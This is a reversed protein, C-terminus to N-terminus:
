ICIINQAQDGAGVKPMEWDGTIETALSRIGNEPWQLWQVWTYIWVWVFVFMYVYLKFYVSFSLFQELCHRKESVTQFFSVFCFLVGSSKGSLFCLSCRGWTGPLGPICHTELWGPGCIFSLCFCFECFALPPPVCRKDWCESAPLDQTQPWGPRCLLNWYLWPQVSFGQRLFCFCFCFLCFCFLVFCFGLFCFLKRFFSALPGHFLLFSLHVQVFNFLKQIAFSVTHLSLKSCFFFPKALQVHM